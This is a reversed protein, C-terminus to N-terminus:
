IRWVKTSFFVHEFVFFLGSLKFLYKPIMQIKEWDRCVSMWLTDMDWSLVSFAYKYTIVILITDREPPEYFSQQLFALETIVGNWEELKSNANLYSVKRVMKTKVEQIKM